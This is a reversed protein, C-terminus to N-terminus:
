VALCFTLDYELSKLCFHWQQQEKQNDNVIYSRSFGKMAVRLCCFVQEVTNVLSILVGTLLELKPKERLELVPKPTNAWHLACSLHLWLVVSRLIYSKLRGSETDVLLYLWIMIDGVIVFAIPYRIPLFIYRSDRDQLVLFDLCFLSPM